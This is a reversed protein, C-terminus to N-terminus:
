YNCRVKMYTHFMSSCRFDVLAQWINHEVDLKWAGVRDSFAGRDPALV